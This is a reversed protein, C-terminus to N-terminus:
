CIFPETHHTIPVNINNRAATKPHFDTDYFRSVFAYAHWEKAQQVFCKNLLCVSEADPIKDFVAYKIGKRLLIAM